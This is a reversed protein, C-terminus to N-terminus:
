KGLDDTPLHRRVLVAFRCRWNGTFTRRSVVPKQGVALVSVQGVVGMGKQGRKGEVSGDVKVHTLVAGNFDRIQAFTFFLLKTLFTYM